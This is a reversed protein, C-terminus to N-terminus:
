LPIPASQAAWGAFGDAKCDPKVGDSYHYLTVKSRVSDPLTLLEKYHAHVGTAIPATECDHFIVDATAFLPQSRDLIADGSFWVTLGSQSKWTLGYVPMPAGNDICHTVKVTTFRTGEWDFELGDFAVVDFFDTLETAKHALVVNGAMGNWLGARVDAHAFLKLRRKSGDPNVFNPNFYSCFALYEAGGWHDSHTHTVYVGDLDALAIGAAALSRRIDGGADILLQKGGVKLVANSQFFTQSFAGGVGLYMFTNM